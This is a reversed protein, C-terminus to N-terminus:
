IKHEDVWRMVILKLQEQRFKEEKESSHLRSRELELISLVLDFDVDAEDAAQRLIELKTLM